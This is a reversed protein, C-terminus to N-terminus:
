KIEIEKYGSPIRFPFRIKENLAVSRYELDIITEDFKEVAIIKITQPLKQKNVKQYNQYDIQLIRNENPQAFQQSDMKFHAPNLLYFIEFLERQYKPQLLYSKEFTSAVYEEEKLDYLAEGLLINQVKNFDLNTGVFDSLFKFDGVFYTNDLKNYFSVKEPTILVKAMSFPASMWITKDKEMRLNITTGKSEDNNSYDAKVRATLTKFNAINKTNNRILQKASLDTNIEGETSVTKATKCSFVLLLLILSIKLSFKM